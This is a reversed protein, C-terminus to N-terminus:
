VWSLILSHREYILYFLYIFLHCPFSSLSIKKCITIHDQLKILYKFITM